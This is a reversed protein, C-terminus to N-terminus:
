HKSSSPAPPIRFPVPGGGVPGIKVGLDRAQRLTSFQGASVGVPVLLLVHNILPIQKQDVYDQFTPGWQANMPMDGATIEREKSVQLHPVDLLDVTGDYIYCASALRYRKRYKVFFDGDATVFCAGPAATYAKSGTKSNPWEPLDGPRLIYPIWSSAAILVILVLPWHAFKGILRGAKEGEQPQKM